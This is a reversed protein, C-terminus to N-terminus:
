NAKKPPTPAFLDPLPAVSVGEERLAESEKASTEGYILREPKEGKHIARAEKAFTDGVYDFNNRIHARVKRAVGELDANTVAIDEPVNSTQVEGKSPTVEGQQPRQVRAAEKRRSTSVNPAMLQKRVQTSGCQPCEVLGRKAQEDYASSSSFWAEFGHEDECILAYRIM